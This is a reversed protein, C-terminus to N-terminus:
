HLVSRSPLLLLLRWALGLVFLAAVVLFIRLLWKQFPPASVIKPPTDIQLARIRQLIEPPPVEAGFRDAWYAGVSKLPNLMFLLVRRRRNARRILVRIRFSVWQIEEVETWAVSKPRFYVRYRIGCNDATGTAIGRFFLAILLVMGICSLLDLLVNDSRRDLYITKAFLVAVLVQVGRAVFWLPPFDMQEPRGRNCDDNEM